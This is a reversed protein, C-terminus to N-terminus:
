AVGGRIDGGGASLSRGLVRYRPVPGFGFEVAAAHDSTNAVRGYARSAPGGGPGIGTSVEFGAKYEGPERGDTYWGSNPDGVPAIAIAAAAIQEARERVMALMFGARMIETGFAEYDHEYYSAM